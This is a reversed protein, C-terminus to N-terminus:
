ARFRKEQKKLELFCFKRAKCGLYNYIFCPNFKIINESDNNFFFMVQYIHLAVQSILFSRMKLLYAPILLLWQNFPLCYQM